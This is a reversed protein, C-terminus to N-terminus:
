FLGTIWNVISVFVEAISEILKGFFGKEEEKEKDSSQTEEKPKDKVSSAEVSEKKETKEEGVPNEKEPKPKVPSPITVVMGGESPQEAIHNEEKKNLPQDEIDSRVETEQENTPKETSEQNVVPQEAKVNEEPQEDNQEPKQEEKEMEKESIVVEVPLTKVKHTVGRSQNGFRDESRFTLEYETNPELGKVAYGPISEETFETVLEGNLYMYLKTFDKDVPNKWSVFFSTTTKEFKVNTVEEPAILDPFYNVFGHGYLNDRGSMGLDQTYNALDARLEAASKKPFREKLLALIGAVHPSAQSTGDAIGYGGDLYTSIINMGPASFEVEPGTSSFPTINFTEDVASVGIVNEYKAPFMVPTGKGGNGTASVILIGANYAKNIIDEFTQSNFDTGLSLNIIDINHQISWDIAEILDDLTGEGNSDLAKIAYINADPAVGVVGFGDQEAGIVGAVHTGHGNDDTWDTVNDVTSYGGAIELDPHSSIGTDIVAININKGTYGEKWARPGSISQINWQQSDEYMAKPTEEINDDLNSLDIQINKEVYAIEPSQRIVDLHDSDITVAMAKLHSSQYEINNSNEIILQKGSSNEYGIIVNVESSEAGYSHVPQYSIIFLISLIVLFLKHSKQM